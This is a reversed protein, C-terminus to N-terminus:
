KGRAGSRCREEWKKYAAQPKVAAQRYERDSRKALSKLCILMLIRRLRCFETYIGFGRVWNWGLTPRGKICRELKM